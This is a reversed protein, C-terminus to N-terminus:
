VFYAGAAAEGKIAHNSIVRESTLWAGLIANLDSVTNVDVTAYTVGLTATVAPNVVACELLIIAQKPTQEDTTLTLENDWYDIITSTYSKNPDIYTAGELFYEGHPHNQMTHISLRARNDNEITWDAGSGTAEVGRALDVKTSKPSTLFADGLNASVRTRVFKINDFALSKDEDLGMVIFSTVNLTGNGAISLDIEEITAAAPVGNAIWTNVTNVFTLDATYNLVSTGEKMVPIVTGATIAGVAVGAGGSLNLGFVVMNKSGSTSAANNVSGLKSYYNLQAITNQLMHDLPNTIVAAVATDTYEPTKFISFAVEDNDGYDRDNRVSSLEVYVKYDVLDLPTQFDLHQESSYTGLDCSKTTVSRVKGARIASTAKFAQDGVEFQNVTNTKNSKPTGQVLVIKDVTSITDGAVLFDGLPRAVSDLDDSMVGLQGDAIGVATSTNMLGATAIGVPITSNATGDALVLNGKSVVFHEM